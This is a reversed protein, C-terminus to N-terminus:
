KKKTEAIYSLMADRAAKIHNPMGEASIPIYKEGSTTGSTKCFYIPKGPWLINKEGNIIQEIYPKLGEYDRIPVFNVFDAYTRIKEFSHESGFLTNQAKGVLNLM